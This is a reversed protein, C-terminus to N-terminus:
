QSKEAIEQQSQEKQQQEQAKQEEMAPKLVSNNLVNQSFANILPKLEHPVEKGTEMSKLYIEKVMSVMEQYAKADGKAKEVISEGQAKAQELYADSQAKIQLSQQQVSANLQIDEKKQAAAREATKKEANEIYLIAEKTDDYDELTMAQSLSIIQKQLAIQIMETLKAKEESKSGMSIDVDFTLDITDREIKQLEKFEVSELVVMDWLKYALKQTVQKIHWLYHEYIFETAKNAAEIQNDSVKAGRKAPVPSGLFENNVGMENNLNQLHFNFVQIHTNIQAINAPNSANQIPPSSRGELGTGTTDTSDWYIRGTQKKIKLLQLPEYKMGQGLVVSQLGSVDVFENDPEMLSVAQQIKLYSLAMNKVYSICREVLSPQYTGDNNPITITYNFFVDVGNQYPRIMNQAIDWDLMIDTDIAWVGCYINFKEEEIIEGKMEQNGLPNPKSKKPVVITGGYQNETKVYFNKDLVKVEADLVLFSYEDYPRTYSTTYSDIWVLPQSQKLGKQCKLAIQFWQSEKIKPFRRRAEAITLPESQGIFAIDEGIPSEFINYFVREPKCRKIRIRNSHTKSYSPFDEIKTVICNKALCDTLLQRKTAGGDLENNKIIQKLTKQFFMEEPTRYKTKFWISIEDESEPMFGTELKQGSGQELQQIAEKNQLRYKAEVKQKQKYRESVIDTAKVKPIEDRDMWGRLLAERYKPLVKVIDYIMNVYSQNGEIGLLDIFETHNVKGDIYNQTNAWNNNRTQYYSNNSLSISEWYSQFLARGYSPKLKDSIKDFQLSILKDFSTSNVEAQQENM